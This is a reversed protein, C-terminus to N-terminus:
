RAGEEEARQIDTLTIPYSDMRVNPPIEGLEGSFIVRLEHEKFAAPLEDPGFIAPNGNDYTSYILYRPARSRDAEYVNRIVGERDTIVRKEGTDDAKFLGDCGGPGALGLTVLLLLVVYKM